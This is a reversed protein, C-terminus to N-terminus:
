FTCIDGYGNQYNPDIVNPDFSKKKKIGSFINMNLDGEETGV